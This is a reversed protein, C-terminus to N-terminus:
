KLLKGAGVNWSRRIRQGLRLPWDQWRSRKPPDPNFDATVVRAQPIVQQIATVLERTLGPVPRASVWLLNLKVNLDVYAVKHGFPGLCDRLKIMHGEIVMSDAQKLGPIIMMFDIFPKGQADRSPARTWLPSSLQYAHCSPSRSNKM